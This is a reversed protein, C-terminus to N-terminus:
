RSRNEVTGRTLFQKSKLSIATRMYMAPSHSIGRSIDFLM